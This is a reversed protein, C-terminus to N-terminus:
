TPTSIERPRTRNLEARKDQFAAWLDPPYKSADPEWRVQDPIAGFGDAAEAPPPLRKIGLREAQARTLNVIRSRCRHHLQPTHTGWWPDDLALVTGDCAKCIPSQRSDSIGDFLGFPRFQIVEPARMQRSRGANYAQQVANRFITEVRFSDSRGWAHTLTDAIEKQWEEFPTGNSIADLISEHVERVVDLQAIGAITFGLYHAYSGLVEILGATLPVRGRFWEIAEEFREPEATLEWDM